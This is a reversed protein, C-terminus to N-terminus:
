TVSDKHCEILKSLTDCLLKVSADDSMRHGGYQTLLFECNAGHWCAQLAQSRQWPVDRDDRAHVLILPINLLISSDLVCHPKGSDLLTKYLPLPQESSHSHLDIVGESNLVLRQEDNLGHSLKYETMDPAAAIGLCGKVRMPM